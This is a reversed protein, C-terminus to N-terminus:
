LSYDKKRCDDRSFRIVAFFTVMSGIWFSLFISVALGWNSSLSKDDVPMLIISILLVTVLIVLATALKIGDNM